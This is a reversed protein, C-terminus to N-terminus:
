RHSGDGHGSRRYRWTVVPATLWARLWTRRRGVIWLVGCECRWLTGPRDGCQPALCQHVRRVYIGREAM